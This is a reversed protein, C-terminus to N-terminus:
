TEVQLPVIDSWPVEKTAMENLVVALSYVDSERVQPIKAGHCRMFTEPSAYRFSCGNKNIITFHKVNLLKASLVHSIGFDTLVCRYGKQLREVLVNHPKIDCHALDLAHISKIGRAIDMLMSYRKKINGWKKSHILADLSGLSYFKLLICVPSFCFGLIKAIHEERHLAYFISVEQMFLLKKHADLEAESEAFKKAVIIRGYEQLRAIRGEALHISGYGGQGIKQAL